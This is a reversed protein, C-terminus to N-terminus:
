QIGAKAPMVFDSNAHVGTYCQWLKVFTRIKNKKAQPRGEVMSAEVM